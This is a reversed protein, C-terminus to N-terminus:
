GAFLTETGSTTQAAVPAKPQAIPQANHAGSCITRLAICFFGSSVQTLWFTIL